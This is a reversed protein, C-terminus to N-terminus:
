TLSCTAGCVPCFARKSSSTVLMGCAGCSGQEWLGQDMGLRGGYHDRDPWAVAEVDWATTGTPPDANEWAVRALFLREEMSGDSGSYAPVVRRMVDLLEPVSLRRLAQALGEREQDTTVAMVRLGPRLQNSAAEVWAAEAM